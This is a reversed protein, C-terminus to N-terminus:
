KQKRIPGIVTLIEGGDYLPVAKGGNSKVNVPDRTFLSPRQYFCLWKSGPRMNKPLYPVKIVALDKSITLLATEQNNKDIGRSYFEAVFPIYTNATDPKPKALKDIAIMNLQSIKEPTQKLSDRISESLLSHWRKKQESLISLSVSESEDDQNDRIFKAVISFRRSFQQLLTYQDADSPIWGFAECAEGARNLLVSPQAMPHSEALLETPPIVQQPKSNRRRTLARQEAASYVAQAILNPTKDTMVFYAFQKTSFSYTGAMQLTRTFVPTGVFPNGKKTTVIWTSSPDNIGLAEAKKLAEPALDKFDQREYVRIEETGYLNTPCPPAAQVLYMGPVITKRAAFEFKGLAIVFRPNLALLAQDRKPQASAIGKSVDTLLTQSPPSDVSKDEAPKRADVNAYYADINRASATASVDPWKSVLQNSTLAWGRSDVITGVSQKVGLDTRVELAILRPRIHQWIKRLESEKLYKLEREPLDAAFVRPLPVSHLPSPPLNNSDQRTTEVSATQDALPDVPMNLQGDAFVETDEPSNEIVVTENPTRIRLVSFALTALVLFTLCGAAILIWKEQSYKPITFKFLSTKSALSRRQQRKETVTEVFDFDFLPTM